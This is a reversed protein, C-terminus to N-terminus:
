HFMMHMLFRVKVASGDIWGSGIDATPTHRENRNRKGTSLMIIILTNKYDPQLSACDASYALSLVSIISFLIQVQHCENEYWVFLCHRSHILGDKVSVENGAVVDMIVLGHNKYALRFTVEGKFQSQVHTVDSIAQKTWSGQPSNFFM